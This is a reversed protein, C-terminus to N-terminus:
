PPELPNLLGCVGFRSSARAMRLLKTVASNPRSRLGSASSGSVVPGAGFGFDSVGWVQLEWNKCRAASFVRLAHAEYFSGAWFLFLGLLGWFGFCGKM